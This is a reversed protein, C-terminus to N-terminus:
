RKGKVKALKVAEGEFVWRWTMRGEGSIEVIGSDGYNAIVKAKIGCFEVKDGPKFNTKM